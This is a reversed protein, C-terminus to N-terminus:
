GVLEASISRKFQFADDGPHHQIVPGYEISMKAHMRTKQEIYDSDKSGMTEIVVQRGSEDDIVLFDPRVTKSLDLPKTVTFDLGKGKWYYQWSLLAGLTEREPDSDVIFPYTEKYLPLISARVAEFFRSGYRKEAVLLIVWFPGKPVRAPASIKGEVAVTLGCSLVVSNETFSEAMSVIYGQVRRNQASLKQENKLRNFLAFYHSKSSVTALVDALMVDASRWMPIQQAQKYIARLPDFPFHKDASNLGAKELLMYLIRTLRPPRDTQERPADAQKKPNSPAASGEIDPRLLCLDTVSLDSPKVDIESSPPADCLFFPCHEAHGIQRPPRPRVLTLTGLETQRPFLYAPESSPKCDCRLWAGHTKTFAVLDHAIKKREDTLVEPRGAAFVLVLAKQEQETLTRIVRTNDKTVVQM